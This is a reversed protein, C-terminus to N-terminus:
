RRKPRIFRLKSIQKYQPSTAGFISKIYTKSDLAVDVLGTNESYLIKNRAIRSNSLQVIPLIVETNKEKLQNHLAKLTEVKLEEENPNYLPISSLLMILRDFNEIRNDFSMQSASIQNVEKGEAELAKKEEETIKASARRGQLKRVITRASQVVQTSAGSAKLSNMVRTILKSFPEFAVKRAAVANSYAAQAINVANLSETSATLLTQLSTLKISDRSPNYSTELAIISTILSELNTVNKAHGTESTNTM